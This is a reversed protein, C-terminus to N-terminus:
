TSQFMWHGWWAHLMTGWGVERIAATCSIWLIGSWSTHHAGQTHGISQAPVPDRHTNCWDSDRQTQGLLLPSLGTLLAGAPCGFIRGRSSMAASFGSYHLWFFSDAPLYRRLLCMDRYRNLMRCYLLSRRVINETNDTVLATAYPQRQVHTRDSLHSLQRQLM